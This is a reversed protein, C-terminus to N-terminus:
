GIARRNGAAQAACADILTELHQAHRRAVRAGSLSIYHGINAGIAVRPPHRACTRPLRRACAALLAQEVYDACLEAAAIRSRLTRAQMGAAGRADKRIARRAGRLPTVVDAQWRGVATLASRMARRDLRRGRAGLWGCYLLLNVDTGCGDQLAICADAVGAFRFLRVSFRWFPFAPWRM